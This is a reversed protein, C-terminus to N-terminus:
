RSKYFPNHKFPDKQYYKSVSAGQLASVDDKLTFSLSAGERTVYSVQRVCGYPVANPNEIQLEYIWVIAKQFDDYRRLLDDLVSSRGMIVQSEEGGLSLDAGPLSAVEFPAWQWIQRDYIIPAARRYNQYYLAWPAPFGSPQIKILCALSLSAV